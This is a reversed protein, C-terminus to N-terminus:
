SPLVSLRLASTRLVNVSDERLDVLSKTSDIRLVNKLNQFLNLIVASPNLTFKM